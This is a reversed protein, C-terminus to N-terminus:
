CVGGQQTHSSPSQQASLRVILSNDFMGMSTPILLLVTKFILLATSVKFWDAKWTKVLPMKCKSDWSVFAPSLTM